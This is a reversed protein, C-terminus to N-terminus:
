SEHVFRIQIFDILHNELCQITMGMCAGVPNAGFITQGEERLVIKM